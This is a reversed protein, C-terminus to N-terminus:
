PKFIIGLLKDSDLETTYSFNQQDKQIYDPYLYKYDFSKPFSVNVNIIFDHKGSQKQWTLWYTQNEPNLKQDLGMNEKITQWLTNEPAAKLNLKFPLKYSISVTQTEGPEVKIWNAFVTKNEQSLIETNSNPDINKTVEILSIDPDKTYAEHNPVIFFEPPIKYFGEAKILECGKPVYIRLYDLNAVGYFPEGLLGTHTKTITLNNIISGDPQIEVKLIAVQKIKADTKEGAINTSVINLYDNETTSLKGGWNNQNVFKELDYDTFYFQIEKQNLATLFLNLLQIIQQSDSQLLKNIMIPTLDAIIQKPRNIERDYNLEVEKQITSIFNSQNIQLQYEPLDIPGTVSLLQKMLTANIFIIGDFTPGGSKEFLYSLKEASTPLDAFWNGDQFEWRDNVVHLPLPSEIAAKLGAKLDYPGGGPIDIKTVNGRDVDILAYSGIFGGTPRLENNNQFIILYRKKAGQGLLNLLLDSISNFYELNKVILPLNTQLSITKDRYEAPLEEISINNLDKVASQLDPLVLNLSNKLITLNNTLNLGDLSKNVKIKELAETLIAASSSLKEGASLLNSATTFQENTNPIISILGRVVLNIDDLESKAQNFNAASQELQLEVNPLDQASAAKQTIALHYLAQSAQQFINVKKGQLNQYYNFAFFPLIVLCCIVVFALSAKAWSSPLILRGIRIEPTPLEPFAIPGTNVQPQPQIQAPLIIIPDAKKTKSKAIQYNPSFDLSKKVRRISRQVSKFIGRKKSKFGGLLQNYVQDEQQNQFNQKAQAPQKAKKLDLVHRSLRAPNTIAPISRESLSIDPYDTKPLQKPIVEQSVKEQKIALVPQGFIKKDTIKHIKKGSALKAKKTKKVSKVPTKKKIKTRKPM